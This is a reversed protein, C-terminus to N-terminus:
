GESVSSITWSKGLIAFDANLKFPGDAFTVKPLSGGLNQVFAAIASANPHRVTLNRLVVGADEMTSTPHVGEPWEILIPAAGGLPLIGTPPVSLRWELPGRSLDEPVGLDLGSQQALNLADDLNQM